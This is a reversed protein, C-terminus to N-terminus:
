ANVDQRHGDTASSPEAHKDKEVSRLEQIQRLSNLISPQRDLLRLMNDHGGGQIVKGSEWRVVVKPGTGLVNELESQTLRLRQRIEAIKEPSLLGYKKRVENKVARVYARMQEPTVFEEKCSGCRFFAKPVAVTEARYRAQKVEKIEVAPEGCIVCNM